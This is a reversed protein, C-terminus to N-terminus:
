IHLFGFPAVSDLDINRTVSWLVDVHGGLIPVPAGEKQDLRRLAAPVQLAGEGQRLIGVQVVDVSRGFESDQGERNRLDGRLGLVRLLDGDLASQITSLVRVEM